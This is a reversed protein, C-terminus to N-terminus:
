KMLDIFAQNDAYAQFELDKLAKQKLNAIAGSSIKKRQTGYGVIVVEDLQTADPELVVDIVTRNGVTTEVSHYGVFSFLLVAGDSVEIRYTGDANSVTGTATGKVRITVGPLPDGNEDTVTGTITVPDPEYSEKVALVREKLPKVSINDNIRVFHLSTQHSIDVLLNYLSTSRSQAILRRNVQSQIKQEDFNFVFNTQNEIENFFQKASGQSSPLEIIIDRVSKNSQANALPMWPSIGAASVSAFLYQIFIIQLFYKSVMRFTTFFHNM